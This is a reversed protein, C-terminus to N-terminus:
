AIRRVAPEEGLVRLAGLIATLDNQQDLRTFGFRVFGEITSRPVEVIFRALLCHLAHYPSGADPLPSTRRDSRRLAGTAPAGSRIEEISLMGDAIAALARTRVVAHFSRRCSPRCFRQMRAGTQRRNSHGIAGVALFRTARQPASVEEPKPRV